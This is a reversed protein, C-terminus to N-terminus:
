TISGFVLQIQYKYEFSELFHNELQWALRWLTIRLQCYMQLKLGVLQIIPNVPMEYFYRSMWQWISKQFHYLNCVQVASFDM